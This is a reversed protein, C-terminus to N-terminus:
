VHVRRRGASPSPELPRVDFNEPRVRITLIVGSKQWFRSIKAPDTRIEFLAQSIEVLKPRVRLSRPLDWRSWAQDRLSGALDRLSWALDRRCWARDRLSWALYRRSRAPDRCIPCFWVPSSSWDVSFTKGTHKGTPDTSIPKGHKLGDVSGGSESKPIPSGGGVTVSKPDAPEWAPDSPNPPHTPYRTQNSVGLQWTGLPQWPGLAWWTGEKVGSSM